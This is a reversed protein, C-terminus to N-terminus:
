IGAVIKIQLWSEFSSILLRYADFLASATKYCVRQQREPRAVDLLACPGLMFSTHLCKLSSSPGLVMERIRGNVRFNVATKPRVTGFQGSGKLKTTSETGECYDVGAPAPFEVPPFCSNVACGQQEWRNVPKSLVEM